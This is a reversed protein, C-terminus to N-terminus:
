YQSKQKLKQIEAYERVIRFATQLTETLNRKYHQILKNDPSNPTLNQVPEGYLLDLPLKLDRGFNLFAPTEGTTENISTRIAFALKQIEADWAKHNQQAYIRIQQKLTRNVRETMNTQPHYNATLKHGM